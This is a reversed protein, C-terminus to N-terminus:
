FTIILLKFGKKNELRNQTVGQNLDCLFDDM